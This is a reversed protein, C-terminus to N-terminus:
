GTHYVRDKYDKVEKEKGWAGVISGIARPKGAWNQFSVEGGQISFVSVLTLNSHGQHGAGGAVVHAVQM